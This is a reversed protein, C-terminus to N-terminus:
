ATRDAGIKVLMKGLNEGTFLGLFAKPANEIGEVTTEKWKIRGERIWKGMDAYFQNQRDMHDMVIFGQLTLRKTVALFLNGPGPQRGAANYLSIMGCLVIRGFPNMHDLATELHEGGVNDYYIDLGNPCLKGLEMGLERANGYKKYNIASDIGVTDLLWAIKDDSGASGVVRCGKIKAIQCVVSGVAGSAASVFVTEGEKPRGIDLLGVYATMGPMGLVGLFSQIPAVTPDIKTLDSGDSLFYERWGKTGLVIDGTRFKESESVTVEGICGGELPKSLEFPPVYSPKDYMRGRMYPDVSMFINRVLVEGKRPEPAQTEALEFDSESPM